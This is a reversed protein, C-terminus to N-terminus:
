EPAAASGGGYADSGLLLGPVVEACWADALCLDLFGPVAVEFRDLSAGLRGALAEGLREAIARPADRLVPALLMAANTSYDGFADRKPRELTPTAGPATHGARLAASSEVVAARLADLATM